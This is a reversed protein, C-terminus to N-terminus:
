ARAVVLLRRHTDDHQVEDFAVLELVRGVLKRVERRRYRRVFTTKNPDQFYRNHGTLTSVLNAELLDFFLWGGPEIHRVIRELAREFSPYLHKFCLSSIVVDFRETLDLEEVDGHLVHLRPDRFTRHLYDVNQDSLDLGTYSAFPTRRALLTSLLRGYGPGIELIRDGDTFARRRAVVDIFGDGTIQRAWTLGSDPPASRWRFRSREWATRPQQGLQVEPAMM